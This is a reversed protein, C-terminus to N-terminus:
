QKIIKERVITNGLKLEFFYIGDSLGSIDMRQANNGSQVLVSSRLVDRGRIDKVQIDLKGSVDGLTKIMLYDTAPNPFCHIQFESVSAMGTTLAVIGKVNSRSTNILSRSSACATSPKVEIAYDVFGPPASFDVYSFVNNPLSDIMMWGTSNYNRWIYFYNYSFGQYQDWILQPGFASNTVNLYINKHSAIFDSENGCSDVTSLKYKWAHQDTSAVIDLFESLSDFPITAIRLYKNAITSQRYLRFEEIGINPTKEWIILNNQTLTDVTIMCIPQPFINISPLEFAGGTVCGNIDTVLVSYNGEPVNILDEGTFGNSWQISYQSGTSSFIGLYISGTGGACSPKKLSDAYIFIGSNNLPVEFSKFCGNADTVAVTYIGAALNNVNSSTSSGANQDWLYTYPATGEYVSLFISGDANGCSAYAMGPYAVMEKPAIVEYVQSTVCGSSDTVSVDYAGAPLNGIWDSVPGGGMVWTNSAEGNSWHVTIPHVGNSTIYIAGNENNFCSPNVISDLNVVPGNANNLVGVAFYSCGNVDTVTIGHNGAPLSDAVSSTDGNNWLYTFPPTGGDASISIEGDSQGCQPPINTNFTSVFSSPEQINVSFTLICGNNDTVEANYYGASLGSAVSDNGGVPSWSYIYPPTGGSLSISATGDQGGPCSVATTSFNLNLSPPASVIFTDTYSCGLGDVLNLYYTGSYLNSIDETSATFGFPGTWTYTIPPNVGTVTIDISGNSLNACNSNTIQPSVGINCVCNSCSGWCVVPLTSDSVGVNLYRNVFGANFITCPSGQILAEQTTWNDTSFKFEYSGPPIAITAEWIGDSNVDTMPNCAGCWNNFTGNVEPTVFGSSQAMNVRFTINTQANLLLSFVFFLLAAVINKVSLINKM